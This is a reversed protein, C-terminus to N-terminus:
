RSGRVPRGAAARAASVIGAALYACGDVLEHLAERRFDRRLTALQLAGYQARGAVLREALLALVEAEDAEDGLLDLAALIRERPTV